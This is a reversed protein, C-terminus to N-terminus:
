IGERGIRRNGGEKKKRDRGVKQNGVMKEERGM